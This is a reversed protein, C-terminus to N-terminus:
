EVHKDLRAVHGRGQAQLRQQVFRTVTETLGSSSRRERSWERRVFVTAIVAVLGLSARIIRSM